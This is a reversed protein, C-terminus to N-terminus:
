DKRYMRLFIRQLRLLLMTVTAEWIMVFLLVCGAIALVATFLM